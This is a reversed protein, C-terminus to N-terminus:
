IQWRYIDGRAPTIRPAVTGRLYLYVLYKKDGKANLKLPVLEMKHSVVNEKEREALKKMICTPWRPVGRIGKLAKDIMIIKNIQSASM